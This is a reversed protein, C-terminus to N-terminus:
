SRRDMAADNWRVDSACRLGSHSVLPLLASLDISEGTLKIMRQPKTSKTSQVAPLSDDSQLIFSPLELPSSRDAQFILWYRLADPSDPIKRGINAQFLAGATLLPRVSLAIKSLFFTHCFIFALECRSSSNGTCDVAM